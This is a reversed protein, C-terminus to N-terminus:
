KHWSYRLNLNRPKNGPKEGRSDQPEGKPDKQDPEASAHLGEVGEAASGGAESSAASVNGQGGANSSTHAGGAQEPDQDKPTDKEMNEDDEEDRNNQNHEASSTMELGSAREEPHKDKHNILPQHLMM